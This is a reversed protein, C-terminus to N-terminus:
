ARRVIRLAADRSRSDFALVLLGYVVMGLIVKTAVTTAASAHIPAYAVILHMALALLAFKVIKLWPLDFAIRRRSLEYALAALVVHSAFSAVAAGLIGMRPVLIINLALNFLACGFVLSVLTRTQKHIYLGSAFLAVAGNVVMGAAIVPIVEAGGRYKESALFVLLDPGLAALGAIVAAGLLLYFHLTDQIFRRMEEEGKERWIRVYMPVVAQGISVILITQVYDCLNYAASYLGLPAPGLYHEIVFRDSLALMVGGMEYAIMPVGFALMTRYLAPSFASVRFQCERQMYRFLLLVAIAETVITGVYFGNVGPYVFTVALLIFALTGYRKGVAYVNFAVSREDARLMNVMASDVPRILVLISTLLALDRFRPDTSLWPAILQSAGAWLTAVLAAVVTMGVLITSNYEVPDRGTRLEGQFRVIAHQVGLKGLGVLFALGSGVLAIIGYEDVNFLRTFIPFSVLGALMMLFSGISYASTHALLRRLM